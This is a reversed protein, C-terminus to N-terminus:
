RRFRRPSREKMWRPNGQEDRLEMLIGTRQHTIRSAVLYIRGKSDAMRSGEVTLPDGSKLDWSQDKLYWGPALMVQYEGDKTELTLSAMGRTSELSVSKVTGEVRVVTSRDFGPTIASGWWYGEAGIGGTPLGLVSLIFFILWFFTGNLRQKKLHEQNQTTMSKKKEM